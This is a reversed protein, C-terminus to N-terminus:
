LLHQCEQEESIQKIKDLFSGGKNGAFQKYAIKQIITGGVVQPENSLLVLFRGMSDNVYQDIKSLYNKPVVEGAFFVSCYDSSDARFAIDMSKEYVEKESLGEKQEPLIYHMNWETEVGEEKVGKRIQSLFKGPGIKSNNIISIHEPSINGVSASKMTKIVNSLIKTDSYNENQGVYIILTCKISIEERAFKCLKKKDLIDDVSELKKWSLSERTKIAAWLNNRMMNCVRGDVCKFNFDEHNDSQISTIEAGNNKFKSLRDAYCYDSLNSNSNERESCFVCGDCMTQMTKSDKAEDMVEQKKRINM